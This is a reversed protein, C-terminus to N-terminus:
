TEATYLYSVGIRYGYTGPEDADFIPTAPGASLVNVSRNGTQPNTPRNANARVIRYVEEIAGGSVAGGSTSASGTLWVKASSTSASDLERDSAYCAVPVTGRLTQNPASAGANIADFGTDGGRVASEDPQGVVVYPKAPAEDRGYIISPTENFTNAANWNSELLQLVFQERAERPM